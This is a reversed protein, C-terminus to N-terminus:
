HDNSGCDVTVLRAAHDEEVPLQTLEVNSMVLVGITAMLILSTAHVRLRNSM